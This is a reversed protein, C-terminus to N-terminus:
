RSLGGSKAFTTKLKKPKFFYNSSQNMLAVQFNCVFDYCDNYIKAKKKKKM